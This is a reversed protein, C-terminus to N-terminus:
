GIIGGDVRYKSTNSSFEFNSYKGVFLGTGTTDVTIFPIGDAGHNKTSLHRMRLLTRMNKDRAGTPQFLSVLM